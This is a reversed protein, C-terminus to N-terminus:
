KKVPYFLYVIKGEPESSIGEKYALMKKRVLTMAHVLTAYASLRLKQALRKPTIGPYETVVEVIKM